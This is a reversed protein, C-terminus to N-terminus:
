EGDEEERIQAELRDREAQRMRLLTMSEFEDAQRKAEGRENTRASHQALLDAMTTAGFDPASGFAAAAPATKAGVKDPPDRAATNLHPAHDTRRQREAWGVWDPVSGKAWKAAHDRHCAWCGAWNGSAFEVVARKGKKKKGESERLIVHAVPGYQAVLGAQVSTSSEGLSAPINLLLTLDAPEILPQKEKAPKPTTVPTTAAEARLKAKELMARGAEKIGAEERAVQSRKVQEVRARKAEEERANLAQEDARWKTCPPSCVDILGKRKKDSEAYKEKRRRDAELRQDIYSRKAPDLLMELSVMIKRFM